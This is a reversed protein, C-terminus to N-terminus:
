PSRKGRSMQERMWEDVMKTHLHLPVGVQVSPVRPDSSCSRGETTKAPLMLMPVSQAAEATAWPEFNLLVQDQTQAKQQQQRSFLIRIKSYAVRWKIKCRVGSTTRIHRTRAPPIIDNSVTDLPCVPPGVLPIHYSEKVPTNMSHLLFASM